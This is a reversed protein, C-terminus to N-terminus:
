QLFFSVSFTPDIPDIWSNPSFYVDSFEDKNELNDKLVLLLERSPSFGVMAIKARTQVGKKTKEKVMNFNFDTLYTGQPFTEYIQELAKTLSDRDEYVSYIDSFFSNYNTIEQENDKYLSVIKQREEFLIKQSQITWLFYNKVILLMLGTSLIFFIFLSGLILVLRLQRQELLNKKQEPPLLNIM